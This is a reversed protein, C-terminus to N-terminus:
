SSAKWNKALNVLTLQDKAERALNAAWVEDDRVADIESSILNQLVAPDLADLEWSEDLGTEEQYRLFRSDTRKAPQPLPNYQQVQEYSLAIRKVRWPPESHITGGHARICERMSNRIKDNTSSGFGPYEAYATSRYWDNALFTAFRERIDRTMDLGSPDHDGIHLVTVRDGNVLHNGIRQAANWMESVSTYGRCSFYPVQETACVSEIVGIGADKEIWVEVRHHTGAWLDVSYQKAAAKLLAAPSSWTTPAVLNRTRDILYEWDFEGAMRADNMLTQLKDYERQDNPFANLTVLKYYLQRLTLPTSYSACIQTAKDIIAQKAPSFKKNLYKVRV